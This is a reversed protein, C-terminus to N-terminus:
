SRPILGSKFIHHLPAVTRPHTHHHVSHDVVHGGAPSGADGPRGETVTRKRRRLIRLVVEVVVPPILARITSHSIVRALVIHLQTVQRPQRIQARSAVVCLVLQDGVQLVQLELPRVDSEANIGGLVLVCPLETSDETTRPRRPVELLHDGPRTLGYGGLHVQVITMDGLEVEGPLQGRVELVFVLQAIQVREARGPPEDIRGLGHSEHIVVICLTPLGDQRVLVPIHVVQRIHKHQSRLVAVGLNHGAIGEVAVVLAGRGVRHVATVVPDALVAPGLDGVHHCPPFGCPVARHLVENLVPAVVDPEATPRRVHRQVPIPRPAPLRRHLSPHRSPGITIHRLAVVRRGARLDGHVGGSLRADGHGPQLGHGEVGAHLGGRMGVPHLGDGVDDDLQPNM